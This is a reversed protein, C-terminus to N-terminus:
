HCRTPRGTCTSPSRARAPSRAHWATRWSTQMQTQTRTKPPSPACLTTIQGTPLRTNSRTSLRARPQTSPRWPHRLRPEPPTWAHTTALYTPRTTCNWRCLSPLDSGALSVTGNLGNPAVRCVKTINYKYMWQAAAYTFKYLEWHEAWYTSNTPDITSFSFSGCGLHSVLLPRFGLAAYTANIVYAPSATMQWAYGTQDQQNGWWDILAYPPPYAWAGANAPNHGAFTRLNSVAANYQAINTVLTGNMDKGWMLNGTAGNSLTLTCNGSAVCLPTLPSNKNKAYSVYDFLGSGWFTSFAGSWYTSSGLKQLPNCNNCGPLGATTCVPSLDANCGAFATASQLAGGNASAGPMTVSVQGSGGFLRISNVGLAQMFAM